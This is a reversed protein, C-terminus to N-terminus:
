HFEFILKHEPQSKTSNSFIPVRGNTRQQWSTSVSYASILKSHHNSHQLITNTTTMKSTQLFLFWSVQQRFAPFLKSDAWFDVQQVEFHLLNCNRFMAKKNTATESIQLQFKDSTTNQFHNKQLNLIHM